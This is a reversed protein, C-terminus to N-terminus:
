HFSAWQKVCNLPEETDGKFYVQVSLGNAPYAGESERPKCTPHLLEALWDRDSQIMQGWPIESRMPDGGIRFWRYEDHEDPNIRVPMKQDTRALYIEPVWILKPAEGNYQRYGELVGVKRFANDPLQLGTEQLLERKVGYLKNPDGPEDGGGPMGWKGIGIRMRKGLHKREEDKENWGPKHLLLIEREDGFGTTVIIINGTIPNM